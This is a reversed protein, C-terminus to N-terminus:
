IDRLRPNIVRDLAFGLLAFALGTLVLLGVPQLVWYYNGQYLGNTVADHIVKGWTPLQPDSLGLYALTAEYFVFGPVMIVLQPILVPIIRPLLYLLIIRRNSAGYAQAGEIFGAEKVQLFVSRYNKIATGFINLLVIVWLISWISKSYMVFFMIAVPLTPLIINVETIRQIAEDLWGNYWVGVAAILMSILSTVIAGLFGFALAVPTGWLLAVMLDRRQDDTGALGSVQGYLIMEAEVNSVPEFVLNSIRLEYTGNLPVAFDQEPDGLLGEIIPVGKMKRELREDQDISYRHAREPSFSGLRIERGDPTLWTMSVHPAKEEYASTLFVVMEVPFDGYPYEFVFTYSIDVANEGSPEYHKEIAEDRSDQIITEPLKQSRFFNFYMPRANHPNQYWTTRGLEDPNHTQWLAVAQDYPIAILTFISVGILILIIVFGVIASPFKAVERMTSRLGGTSKFLNKIGQVFSVRPSRISPKPKVSLVKKPPHSSKVKNWKWFRFGKKGKQHAARLKQNGEVRVRPDIVAYIIDLSFVTIALLYAFVVVIAVIMSISTNNFQSAAQYFMNGLGPWNFLVELAISGEWLTLMMMTFSTLVYPLSPRLIYRREIVRNSLGQARAMEVYDEGSYILFFTRWTFIGTFIVSLFIAMVPLVMQSLLLRVFDPNWEAYQMDITKPFDIIQLEGALVVILLIGFIWSPASMLSALIVFIRDLIGGYRRSLFLAFFVSVFFFLFNSVGVLLITYPLRELIM